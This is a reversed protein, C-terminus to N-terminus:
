QRVARQRHKNCGQGATKGASEGGQGPAQEPLHNSPERLKQNSKLGPCSKNDTQYYFKDKGWKSPNKIIYTQIRECSVGDRIIIDYFLPHWAVGGVNKMGDTIDDNLILIGHIHNPMVVFADLEINRAHNKTEYWLVDAIAGAPSLQM